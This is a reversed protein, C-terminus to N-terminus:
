DLRVSNFLHNKKLTNGASYNFGEGKVQLQGGFLRHNEILILSKCKSPLDCRALFGLWDGAYPM